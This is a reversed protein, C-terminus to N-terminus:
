SFSELCKSINTAKQAEASGLLSPNYMAQFSHTSSLLTRPFLRLTLHREQNGEVKKGKEVKIVTMVM